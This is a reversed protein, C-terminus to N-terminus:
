GVLVAMQDIASDGAQYRYPEGARHSSVEHDCHINVALTGTDIAQTRRGDHAPDLVGLAAQDSRWFHRLGVNQDRWGDVHRAHRGLVLLFAGDLRAVLGCAGSQGADHGLTAPKLGNHDRFM